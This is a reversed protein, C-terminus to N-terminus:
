VRTNGTFVINWGLLQMDKGSESEMYFTLAKGSGRIKSKTTIVKHGYDFTDAGSSPLYLRKLRYAQFQSAYKGSNTHDAFDWRPTILCSSPRVASLNGSRIKHSIEM